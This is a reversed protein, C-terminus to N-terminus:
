KWDWRDAKFGDRDYIPKENNYKEIGGSNYINQSKINFGNQDVPKRSFRDIYISEGWLNELSNGFQDTAIEKDWANASTANFIILCFFFTYKM